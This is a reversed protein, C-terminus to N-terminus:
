KDLCKAIGHDLVIDDFRTLMAELAVAASRSKRRKHM